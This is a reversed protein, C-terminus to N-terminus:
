SMTGLQLGMRYFCYIIISGFIIIGVPAFANILKQYENHQLHLLNKPHRYYYTAAQKMPKFSWILAHLSKNSVTFRQWQYVTKEGLSLDAMRKYTALLQRQQAEPVSIYQQWAQKATPLYSDIQSIALLPLKPCYTQHNGVRCITGLAPLVLSKNKRAGKSIISHQQILEFVEPNLFHAFEKVSFHYPFFVNAKRVTRAVNQTSVLLLKALNISEEVNNRSIAYAWASWQKDVNVDPNDLACPDAGAALLMRVHPIDHHNTAISLATHGDLGPTNIIAPAEHTDLLTRTVAPLNELVSQALCYSDVTTGATLLQRVVGPGEAPDTQCRLISCYLPTWGNDDAINPDAGVALLANVIAPKCNKAAYHLCTWHATTSLRDNVTNSHDNGLTIILNPLKNVAALAFHQVKPKAGADLLPIAMNQTDPQCAFVLPSHERNNEKNPNAGTQLLLSLIEPRQFDIAYHLPTNGHEDLVADKLERNRALIAHAANIENDIIAQRLVQELSPKHYRNSEMSLLPSAIIFLLLTIFSKSLM